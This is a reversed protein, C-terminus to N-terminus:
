GTFLLHRRKLFRTIARFWNWTVRYLNGDYEFYDRATGYRLADQVQAIPLATTGCLQEQTAQGLQITARLVFVTSDPLGELSEAEPAQFLRVLVAGDTDRSLSRRWSHLAVGPNGSAYDWLLRYYNSETRQLAEQIDIDDADAPLDRLLLRFDPTIGALENRHHLLRVIGDETWPTLHIAEDFLPKEGRARELFRWLAEDVAFIWTCHASTQRALDLLGDFDRLGGMMPLILHQADDILISIEEGRRQIHAAIAALDSNDQLGLGRALAPKFFSLGGPPCRVRIVSVSSGAIRQLISTKGTGREGIIAYVGGGEREIHDILASVQADAVSPVIVESQTEPGLRAFTADDLPQYALEDAAQKGMDRRFLYALLRRVIVFTVVWGRIVRLTGSSFLYVGGVIAAVFSRPGRQEELVWRELAGKKRIRELREFITPKWWAIITLLIPIAAFWCTSFVWSYITGQGVLQDSLRLILGFTVVTRGILRLSRLRLPGTANTQLTQTGRREGDINLADITNVVLTGGLTWSFITAILQVELLARLPQPLLTIVTWLLVLWELPRHIRQLLRLARNPWILEAASGLQRKQVHRATDLWSQLLSRSRRRWWSFAGFLALWELLLLTATWASHRHEGGRLRQAWTRTAHLHYRLTLWVQRLESHAQDLGTSGWGTVQSRKESSLYPLLRLRLRNLMEVEAALMRARKEYTAVEDQKLISYRDAIEARQRDVQSRGLDMSLDALPDPGAEPVRSAGVSLQKIAASLDDRATRLHARLAVYESDMTDRGGEGRSRQELEDELRRRIGLAADYRAAVEANLAILEKEYVVQASTVSLLRAYEEHIAREAESRAQKAATLAAEAEQAARRAERDAESLARSQASAAGQREEHAALLAARETPPLQYFSLRAADLATRAKWLMHTSEEEQVGGDPRSPVALPSPPPPQLVPKLMAALRRAEVAVAADNQLDVDFLQAPEIHEDLTGVLLARVDAAQERLRQIAPPRDGADQGDAVSRLPPTTPVPSAPAADAESGSKGDASPPAATPSHERLQTVEPSNMTQGAQGLAVSGLMGQAVSIMVLAYLARFTATPRQRLINLRM